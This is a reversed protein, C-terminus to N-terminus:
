AAVERVISALISPPGVPGVSEIGKITAVTIMGITEAGTDSVSVDYAGIASLVRYFSAGGYLTASGDGQDALTAGNADSASVAGTVVPAGYFGVLMDDDFTTTVGGSTWPESADVQQNAQDFASSARAGLVEVVWISCSGSDSFNASFTHSANGTINEAVYVRYTVGGSTLTTGRQTWTHGGVSDTISSFTNDAIVGLVITSGSTTARAPTTVVTAAGGAQAMGHVGASVTM